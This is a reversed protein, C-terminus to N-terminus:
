GCSTEHGELSPHAVGPSAGFSAVGYREEETRGGFNVYYKVPRSEAVPNVVPSPKARGRYVRSRSDCREM